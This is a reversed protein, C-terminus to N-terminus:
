VQEHENRVSAIYDSKIVELIGVVSALTINHNDTHNDIVEVLENQLNNVFIDNQRLLVVKRM